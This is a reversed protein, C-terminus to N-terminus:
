SSAKASTEAASKETKVRVLKIVKADRLQRLIARYRKAELEKACAYNRFKLVEVASKDANLKKLTEAFELHRNTLESFDSTALTITRTM